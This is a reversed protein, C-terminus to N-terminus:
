HTERLANVWWRDRAWTIALRKGGCYFVVSRYGHLQLQAWFWQLAPPRPPQAGAAVEFSVRSENFSRFNGDRAPQLVVLASILSSSRRVRWYSSSAHAHAYFGQAYFLFNTLHPISQFLVLGVPLKDSCLIFLNNNSTFNTYLCCDGPCFFIQRANAWHKRVECQALCKM